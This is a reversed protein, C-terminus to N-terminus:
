AIEPFDNRKVADLACRGCYAVGGITVVTTGGDGNSCTFPVEPPWPGHDTAPGAVSM